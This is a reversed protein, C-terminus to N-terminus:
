SSCSCSGVPAGARGAPEVGAAAAPRRPPAPPAATTPLLRRGRHETRLPPSSPRGCRCGSGVVLVGLWSRAGVGVRGEPGLSGGPRRDVPSRGLPARHLSGAVQPPWTGPSPSTAATSGATRSSTSARTAPTRISGAARGPTRGPASGRAARGRPLTTTAPRSGIRGPARERRGGSALEDADVLAAEHAAVGLAARCRHRATPRRRRRGRRRLARGLRRPGVQGAGGLAAVADIVTSSASRSAPRRRSRRDGRGLRGRDGVVPHVVVAARDRRTSPVLSRGRGAARTGGGRRDRDARAHGM